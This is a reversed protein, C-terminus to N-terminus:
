KLLGSGRTALCNKREDAFHAGTPRTFSLMPCKLEGKVFAHWSSEM